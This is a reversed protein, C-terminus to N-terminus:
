LDSSDNMTCASMIGASKCMEKLVGTSVRRQGSDGATNRSFFVASFVTSAVSPSCLAAVTSTQGTPHHNATTPQTISQKWLDSRKNGICAAM